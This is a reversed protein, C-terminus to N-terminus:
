SIGLKRSDIIIEGLDALKRAVGLIEDRAEVSAAQYGKAGHRLKQSLESRRGRSLAKLIRSRSAHPLDMVATALLDVALPEIVKKLEQSPLSLLENFDFMMAEIRAARQPEMSSLAALLDSEQQTSLEKLLDAALREGKVQQKLESGSGNLHSSLVADLEELALSSINELSSLRDLLDQRQGEPLSMLVQSGQKPSLCAVLVAQIQPHENRMIEAISHADLWRLKALQSDSSLASLREGLLRGRERGLADDLMHRMDERSYSRINSAQAADHIFRQLVRNSAGAGYDELNLMASSLRQVNEPPLERLVAIAQDRDLSMLVMAAQETNSLSSLDASFKQSRSM